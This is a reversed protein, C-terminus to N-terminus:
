LVAPTYKRGKEALGSNFVTTFVFRCKLIKTLEVCVPLYALQILTVSLQEGQM